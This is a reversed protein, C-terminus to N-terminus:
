QNAFRVPMILYRYSTDDDNDETSGSVVAPKMPDVFSLRAIPRGLQALGDLLYQPNFATTMPEGDYECELAESARADETAGAEVVLGDSSFSLRVPNNREAVLAVRKVVEALAAAPVRAHSTFEAPFISRLPPYNDGELLRSTTRREGGAFGIMGEGAGPASLAIGVTGGLPGLARATESLTRAPVLASLSTDAEDPQWELERMAARYRDTALLTLTNRELEFKVGTIMPLTEDRGAAIAVQAVATAFLAADIRGASRPMAPLAPYDEVPMTPLTFRASGCTIEVRSGETAVDVPKAPLARTIEALLRGSVLVTGEEDPQVDVQVQSSVEYDFGSVTLRGDGVALLVGALVPVPPRNPLSKATWAVADALADREVRFKM